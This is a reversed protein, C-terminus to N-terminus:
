EGKEEVWAGDKTCKERLEMELADLRDKYGPPMPHSFRPFVTLLSTVGFRDWGQAILTCSRWDMTARM